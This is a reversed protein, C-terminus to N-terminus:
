RIVGEVDFRDVGPQATASVGSLFKLDKVSNTKQLWEPVSSAKDSYGTVRIGEGTIEVSELWTGDPLATTLTELLEVRPMAHWREELFATQAELETVDGRLAKVKAAERAQEAAAERWASLEAARRDEVAFLTALALVAALLALLGHMRTAGAATEREHFNFLLVPEPGDALLGIRKPTVGYASLREPLATVDVRRMLALEATVTGAAGDEAALRCDFVVDTGRFPTHRSLQLRLAARAQSASMRPLIIAKRFVLAPDVAVDVAPAAAAKRAKGAARWGEGRHWVRPEEGSMDWVTRRAGQPLRRCFARPAMDRLEALWWRLFARGNEALQDKLQAPVMASM